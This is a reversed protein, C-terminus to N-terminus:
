RERAAARCRPCRECPWVPKRAEYQAWRREPREQEAAPDSEARVGGGVGVGVGGVCWFVCVCVAGGAPVSDAHAVRDGGGQLAPGVGGPAQAPEPLEPEPEEPPHAGGRRPRRWADVQRGVLHPHACRACRASCRLMRPPSPLGASRLLLQGGVTSGVGITAGELVKEGQRGVAKGGAM